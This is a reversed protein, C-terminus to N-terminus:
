NFLHYLTYLTLSLLIFFLVFLLRILSFAFSTASVKKSIIVIITEIKANAKIMPPIVIPTVSFTSAASTEAEAARVEKLPQQRSPFSPLM